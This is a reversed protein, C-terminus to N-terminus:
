VSLRFNECEPGAVCRSSNIFVDGPYNTLLWGLIVVKLFARGLTSLVTLLHCQVFIKRWTVFMIEYADVLVYCGALTFVPSHWYATPNDGPCGGDTTCVSAVILLHLGFFLM